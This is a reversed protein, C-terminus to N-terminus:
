PRKAHRTRMADVRERQRAHPKASLHHRVRRRVDIHPHFFQLDHQPLGTNFHIAEAFRFGLGEVLGGEHLGEVARGSKLAEVEPCAHNLGDNTAKETRPHRHQFIANGLLAPSPPAVVANQHCRLQLDGRCPHRTASMNPHSWFCHSASKTKFRGRTPVGSADGRLDPKDSPRAVEFAAHMSQVNSGCSRRMPMRSDSHRTESRSLNGLARERIETPNILEFGPFQRVRCTTGAMGDESHLSGRLRAAVHGQGSAERVNM